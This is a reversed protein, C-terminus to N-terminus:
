PSFGRFPTWKTKTLERPAAWSSFGLGLGHVLGGALNISVQHSVKYEGGRM